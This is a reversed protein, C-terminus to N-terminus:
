SLRSPTCSLGAVLMHMGRQWVSTMSMLLGPWPEQFRPSRLRVYLQCVLSRYRLCWAAGHLVPAVRNAAWSPSGGQILKILTIRLGLRAEFQVPSHILFAM